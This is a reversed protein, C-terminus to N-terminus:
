YPRNSVPVIVFKEVPVIAQQGNELAVSVLEQHRHVENGRNELDRLLEPPFASTNVFADLGRADAPYVPVSMPVESDGDGELVFNLNGVPQNPDFRDNEALTPEVPKATFHRVDPNLAQPNDSSVFSPGPARSPTWGSALGRDFAVGLGLTVLWCAALALWKAWLPITKAGEGRPLPSPHPNSNTRTDIDARSCRQAGLEGRLAQAELFAMALRRWGGPEDDLSALLTQYDAAALEGDVLRDFRAEDDWCERKDNM